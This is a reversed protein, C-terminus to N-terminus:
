NGTNMDYSYQYGAQSLIGYQNKQPRTLDVMLKKYEDTTKPQGVGTEDLLEQHIFPWWFFQGYPTPVPVGYIKNDFILGLWSRTPLAALNPYDKIADGSVYPTLDAAKAALLEPTLTIDQRVLTNIIDPLESGAILTAFRPALDAFPYFQFILNANLAKNWAQWAPNQDVQPPPAGPINLFISVDSGDGPPQKVSQFTTSPWNVYGPEVIGDPSRPIDPQPAHAPPQYTPPKVATGTPKAPGTAPATTAAAAPVTTPGATPTPAACAALLAAVGTTASARLFTRRDMGDRGSSAGPWQLCGRANTRNTGRRMRRAEAIRYALHRHDGRPPCGTAARASRSAVPRGAGAPSVGRPANRLVARHREGAGPGHRDPRAARRDRGRGHYGPAGRDSRMHLGHRRDDRPGTDPHRRHRHLKRDEAAPPGPRVQQGQDAGAALYRDAPWRQVQVAGLPTVVPRPRRWGHDM